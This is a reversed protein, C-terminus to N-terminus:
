EGATMKRLYVLMKAMSELAVIASGLDVVNEYIWDAAEQATWTAWGPLNEIGARGDDRPISQVDDISDLVWYPMGTEPDIVQHITATIRKQAEPTSITRFAQNLSWEVAQAPTSFEDAKLTSSIVDDGRQITFSVLGGVKRATVDITIQPM